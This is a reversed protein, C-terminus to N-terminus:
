YVGYIFPIPVNVSGTVGPPFTWSINSSSASLRPKITKHIEGTGLSHDLGAVWPTGTALRSDSIGGDSATTTGGGLVRGLRDTVDQILTGSSDFVQLGATM